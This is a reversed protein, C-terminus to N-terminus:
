PESSDVGDGALGADSREAVLQAAREVLALGGAGLDLRVAEDVARGSMKPITKALVEITKDDGLQARVPVFQTQLFVLCLADEHTQVVPDRGLGQKRVIAAVREIEDAAYGHEALIGSVADAHRVKQAARWRLYGSRGEPFDSRPLEWRRLHHARAALLALDDAAPDLRLVWETMLRAHALEKPGSVGDVVLEFPDDANAADIAAVARLFQESRGALAPDVTM